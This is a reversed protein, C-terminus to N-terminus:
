GGQCKGGDCCHKESVTEESLPGPSNDANKKVFLAIFFGEMDEVPGTRLLHHSDEFVPLGRRTWQPFPADLQFGLSSALPLVSNVVNENEAQNVSCTSCVVREVGPFSLAHELAKKQFGSLKYIRHTDSFVDTQTAYSPLLHDLRDATTGSGSCSPDLLIARVNSFLPDETSIELFDRNLVEVNSAGSRKITDKLLEVRKNICNVHLYREKEKWLHLSAFLKTEQLKEEDYVDNSSYLLKDWHILPFEERFDGGKLEFINEFAMEPQVQWDAANKHQPVDEETRRQKGSRRPPDM